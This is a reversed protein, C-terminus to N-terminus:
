GYYGEVEADGFAQQFATEAEHETQYIAIEESLPYYTEYIFLALENPREPNNVVAAQQVNAAGQVHPNRIIVYAIDGPHFSNNEIEM